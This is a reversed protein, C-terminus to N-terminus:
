SAFKENSQCLPIDAKMFVTLAGGALAVRYVVAGQPEVWDAIPVVLPSSLHFTADSETRSLVSGCIMNALECVMEEAQRDTSTEVEEGLFDAAISRAAMKSMRLALWGPPSGDFTLRAAIELAASDSEAVTEGVDSIFFMKELVEVASERLASDFTADIV